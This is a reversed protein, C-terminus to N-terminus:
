SWDKLAELIRNSPFSAVETIAARAAEPFNTTGVTSQDPEVVESIHTAALYTKIKRIADERKINPNLKLMKKLIPDFGEIIYKRVAEACAEESNLLDLAGRSHTMGAVISAPIDSPFNQPNQEHQYDIADKLKMIFMATRMQLYDSPLLRPKTINSLWLGFDKIRDSNASAGIQGSQGVTNFLGFLGVGAASSMIMALMTRRSIINKQGLKYIVAGAGANIVGSIILLALADYHLLAEINLEAGGVSELDRSVKAEMEAAANPDRDVLSIGVNANDGSVVRIKRKKNIKEPSAPLDQWLDDKHPPGPINSNSEADYFYSSELGDIFLIEAQQDWLRDLLEVSKWSHATPDGNKYRNFIEEAEEQESVHDAPEFEISYRNTPIFEATETM